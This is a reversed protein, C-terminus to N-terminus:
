AVRSAHMRVVRLTKASGIGKRPTGAHVCERASCGEAATFRGLLRTIESRDSATFGRLEQSRRVQELSHIAGDLLSRLSYLRRLTAKPNERTSKHRIDSKEEPWIWM